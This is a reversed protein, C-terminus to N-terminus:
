PPLPPPLPGLSARDLANEFEREMRATLDRAQRDNSMVFPTMLMILEKRERQGTKTGFLDGVLPLNHLVPIGSNERNDTDQILGGLMITSGSQVSITSKLRRQSFTPSDINSTTTNTVDSDSLRVDMTVAGGANIHPTVELVVGTEKYQVNNVILPNSTETSTASQTVIPVVDGVQLQATQNDLVLLRPTSIVKTQTVDDLAQLIVKPALDSTTVALNFGPALPSIGNLGTGNTLFAAGKNGGSLDTSIFYQVGYQLAKNLTVEAVTVEIMVQLPPIDIGQLVKRILAYDRASASILLANHAEDAQIRVGHEAPTAPAAAPPMAGEGPVPLPAVAAAGPKAAPAPATGEPPALPASAGTPPKFQVDLGSLAGQLTEAVQVAKSHQLYYVYLERENPNRVRDLRDIWERAEDLYRPQRTLVMVANLRDIALFRIVGIDADKHEAGFINQLEGVVAEPQGNRLPVLAMSMGALQDIDFIRVTDEAIKLEEPSGEVMLLQRKPDAVMVRGPPLVKQLVNLMDRAGIYHLAIIENRQGAVAGHPGREVPAAAYPKAGKQLPVVRIIGDQQVMTAGHSNLVAELTPLLDGRRLPRSIDFTVPGSVAPDIVYNLKLVKGLIEAIVDRIDAGAFNLTVDAPQNDAAAPPAASPPQLAERARVVIAPGAAAPAAPVPPIVALSRAGAASPPPPAAAALARRAEAVAQPSPSSPTVAACGALGAALLV